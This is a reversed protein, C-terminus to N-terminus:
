KTEQNELKERDITNKVIRFNGQKTEEFQFTGKYYNKDAFKEAEELSHFIKM